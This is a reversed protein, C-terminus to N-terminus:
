AATRPRVGTSYGTDGPVWRVELTDGPSLTVGFPEIIVCETATYRLRGEVPEWQITISQRSGKATCGAASLADAWISGAAGPTSCNRTSKGQVPESPHAPACVLIPSSPGNTSM